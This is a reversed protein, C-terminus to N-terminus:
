TGGSYIETVKENEDVVYLDVYDIGSFFVYAVNTNVVEKGQEAGFWLKITPSDSSKWVQDPEGKVREVDSFSDGMEIGNTDIMFYGVLCGVIFVLGVIYPAVKKM